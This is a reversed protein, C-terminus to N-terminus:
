DGETEVYGFRLSRFIEQSSPHAAVYAAHEEAAWPVFVIDTVGSCAIIKDLKAPDVYAALVPGNLKRLQIKETLLQITIGKLDLKNDRDLVRTVDEGFVSSIVGDLNNKTHVALGMTTGGRTQLLAGCHRFATRLAEEDPGISCTHFRDITM